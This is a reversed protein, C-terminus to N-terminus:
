FALTFFFFLATVGAMLFCSQQKETCREAWQEVLLRMVTLNVKPDRPHVVTRGVETAKSSGGKGKRGSKEDRKEEKRQKELTQKLPKNEKVHM